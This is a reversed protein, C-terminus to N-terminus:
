IRNEPLLRLDQNPDALDIEPLFYQVVPNILNRRLAVRVSFCDLMVQEVTVGCAELPPSPLM